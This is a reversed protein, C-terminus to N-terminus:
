AHRWREFFDDFGEDEVRTQAALYEAENRSGGRRWFLSTATGPRPRLGFGPQSAHGFRTCGSRGSDEPHHEWYFESGYAGSSNDVLHPLGERACRDCPFDAIPYREQAKPSPHVSRRLRYGRARAEERSQPTDAVHGIM